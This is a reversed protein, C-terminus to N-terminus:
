KVFRSKVQGWTTALKDKPTVPLVGEIGLNM